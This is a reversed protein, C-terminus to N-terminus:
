RAVRGSRWQDIISPLLLLPDAARFAFERGIRSVDIEPFRLSEAGNAVKLQCGTIRQLVGCIDQHTLNRGRAVNYLTERGALAIQPLLMLVDDLAIYDKSSTLGTALRVEGALADRVLTTLFNESGPDYGVVNSLRVVRVGPRGCNLCLAEGLLKSANYLDSGDMPSIPLPVDEQTEEVGSYVRTSSLYLLSQFSAHELVDALVSVHAKVTHFPWRRFDATM